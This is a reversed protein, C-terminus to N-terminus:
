HVLMIHHLFHRHLPDESPLDSPLLFYISPLTCHQPDEVCLKNQLRLIQKIAFSLFSLFRLTNSRFFMQVFREKVVVPFLCLFISNTLEQEHLLKNCSM